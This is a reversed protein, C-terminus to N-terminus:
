AMFLVVRLSDAANGDSRITTNATVAIGNAPISYVMWGGPEVPVNNPAGVANTVFNTTNASTNILLLSKITTFSVAPENLTDDLAGIAVNTSNSTICADIVSTAQNAATGNAFSKALTISTTGQTTSGGAPSTTVASISAALSASGLPM